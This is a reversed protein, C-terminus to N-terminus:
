ETANFQDEHKHLHSNIMVASKLLSTLRNTIKMFKNTNKKTYPHCVYKHYKQKFSLDGSCQNITVKM